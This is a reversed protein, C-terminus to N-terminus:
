FSLIGFFIRTISSSDSKVFGHELFDSWIQEPKRLNRLGQNIALFVYFFSPLILRSSISNPVVFKPLLSSLFLFGTQNCLGCSVVVCIM